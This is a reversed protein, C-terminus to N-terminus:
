SATNKKVGKEQEAKVKSEQEYARAFKLGDYSTVHLCVYMCREQTSEASKEQFGPSWIHGMSPKQSLQIQQLVKPM